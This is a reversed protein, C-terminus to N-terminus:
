RFFENGKIKEQNAIFAKEPESLDRNVEILRRTLAPGKAPASPAAAAAAASAAPAPSPM